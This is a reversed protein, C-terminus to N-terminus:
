FSWAGGEVYRSFAFGLAILLGLLLFTWRYQKGFISVVTAGLGLLPVLVAFITDLTSRSHLIGYFGSCVTALIVVAFMSWFAMGAVFKMRPEEEDTQPPFNLDVLYLLGPIVMGWVTEMDLDGKRNGYYL